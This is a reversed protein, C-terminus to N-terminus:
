SKKYLIFATKTSNSNKTLHWMRYYSYCSTSSEPLLSEYDQIPNRLAEHFVMDLFYSIEDIDYHKIM